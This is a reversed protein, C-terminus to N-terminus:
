ALILRVLHPWCKNKLVITILSLRQLNCHRDLKGRSHAIAGSIYKASYTISCSHLCRSYTTIFIFSWDWWDWIVIDTCQKNTKNLTKFESLSGLLGPQESHHTPRGSWNELDTSSLSKTIAGNQLGFVITPEWCALLLGHRLICFSLIHIDCAFRELTRLLRRSRRNRYDIRFIVGELSRHMWKFDSCLSTGIITPLSTVCKALSEMWKTRPTSTSPSM